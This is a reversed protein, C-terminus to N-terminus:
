FGGWGDGTRCQTCPAHCCLGFRPHLWLLSQEMWVKYVHLLTCSSVGPSSHVAEAAALAVELQDFLSRLVQM